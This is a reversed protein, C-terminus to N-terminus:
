TGEADARTAEAVSEDILSSASRVQEGLLRLVALIEKSSHELGLEEALQDVRMRSM